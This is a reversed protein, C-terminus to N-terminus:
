RREEGEGVRGVEDGDGEAKQDLGRDHEGEVDEGFGRARVSM